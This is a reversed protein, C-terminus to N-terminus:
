SKLWDPRCEAGLRVPMRVRQFFHAIHHAQLRGVVLAAHNFRKVPSPSLQVAGSAILHVRAIIHNFRHQRFVFKLCSCLRSPDTQVM